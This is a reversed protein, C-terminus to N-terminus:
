AQQAFSALCRDVFDFLLANGDQTPTQSLKRAFHHSDQLFASLIDDEIAETSMGFGMRAIYRANMVQEFQHKVPICLLPKHLYLAEGILSLGANTIVASASALDDVFGQESFSKLLCNGRVEDRRLGYVVFRQDGMRALSDLLRTDTTSTQYVLVHGANTRQAELIPRRLIPPVLTTNDRYKEKIEPYFFTTVGYQDCRPLKARVFAKTAEFDVRHGEFIADDHWCRTIIQQNDLSLIPKDHARAYTYAFSEFDSIVADPAFRRVDELYTGVNELLRGPARFVNSAVTRDRDMAGDDYRIEFGEIETVDDFSKRLFDVARGSVVIKVQHGRSALHEIVVKSRTAHGMGEGVVGYLLKM